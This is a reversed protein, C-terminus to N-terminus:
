SSEAQEIRKRLEAVRASLDSPDSAGGRLMSEAEALAGRAAALNGQELEFEARLCGVEGVGRFQQLDRRLAAAEDFMTRAEDPRGLAALATGLLALSRCEGPRDGIERQIPITNVLLDEADEYRRQRIRARAISGLTTAEGFRDFIELAIELSEHFTAIASEYDGRGEFLAGLCGLTIAETRRNGVERHLALATEAVHLAKAELGSERYLTALNTLVNGEGTRDKQERLIALAEENYRLAEDTRALDAMLNGLNCLTLGELRRNGIERHISLGEQFAEAAEELRGLVAYLNGLNTLLTGESKRNGATRQIDLASRFLELAEDTRGRQRQLVALAGLIAGEYNPFGLERSLVLAQEYHEHASDSDGAIREADALVHLVGLRQRPEGVVDLLDRGLRVSSAYPGSQNFVVSAARYASAATRDDGRSGARRAAAILNDIEAPLELVSRLTTGRGLKILSDDEGIDRFYHGHRVEVADRGGGAEDSDLQDLKESVYEHVTALMHFRPTGFAAKTVLWSKDVLSQIADLVFEETEGLDLVAEAAELTFGGQFVALQALASREWSELMEWSWDLTSRLTAQRGSPGGTVVALRRTLRDRLQELSLLRLRSSALEIALPLGDLKRVIEEVIERNGDDVVFGPLLSKARLQFLEVGHTAPELPDIPLVWEGSAQLRERSTVLFSLDPAVTTWEGLVRPALDAVQEFNDLILLRRPAGARDAGQGKGRALVTGLGALPDEGTLVVDLSRAVAQCIGEVDRAESLDCFWVGGPWQHLRSWGYKRALRTKGLGGTGLLTLLRTPASEGRPSEELLSAIEKLESARGVFRDREPPLSREVQDHEALRGQLSLVVEASSAFRETPDVSLLRLITSEWREPVDRIERPFRPPGELRARATEIPTSRHFPLRGTCMEYLVVGLAYRDSPPGLTGNEVQEPSMYAPTGVVGGPLPETPVILHDRSHSPPAVSRVGAASARAEGVDAGHVTALGFDTVVARVGTRVVGREGTDKGTSHGRIASPEDTGVLIVNQSKFDRHLIGADHAADLASAMQVVWPLADDPAIPGQTAIQDALTPGELFEMTLFHASAGDDYGLDYIRCVNPHSVSRALLVEQKFRRLAERSAAIEPRITKLAVPVELELDHARYVHGMGGSAVHSDIRYRGAVIQGAGFPGVGEDPAGSGGGEDSAGSRGGETAAAERASPSSPPGPTWDLTRDIPDDPASPM